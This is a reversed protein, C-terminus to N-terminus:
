ITFQRIRDALLETIYSNRHTDIVSLKSGLTQLPQSWVAYKEIYKRAKEPDGSLQIDIVDALMKHSRDTVRNFDIVLRGTKDLKIAGSEFLM